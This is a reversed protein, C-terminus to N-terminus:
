CPCREIASVMELFWHHGSYLPEVTNKFDYNYKAALTCFILSIRLATGANCAEKYVDQKEM